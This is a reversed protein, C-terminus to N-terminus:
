KTNKLFNKYHAFRTFPVNQFRFDVNKFKKELDTWKANRFNCRIVTILSHTFIVSKWKQTFNQKHYNKKDHQKSIRDFIWSCDWIWLQMWMKLLFKQSRNKRLLYFVDLNEWKIGVSILTYFLFRGLLCKSTRLFVISLHSIHEFNVIFVGSRHWHHQHSTRTNKNHIKFM